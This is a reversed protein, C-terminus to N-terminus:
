PLRRFGTRIQAGLPVGRRNVVNSNRNGRASMSAPAPTDSPYIFEFMDADSLEMALYPIESFGLLLGHDSPLALDPPIATSWRASGLHVVEVSAAQATAFVRLLDYVTVRQEFSVNEYAFLNRMRAIFYSELRRDAESLMRVKLRTWVPIYTPRVVSVQSGAFSADQVVSQVRVMVDGAFDDSLRWEPAPDDVLTGVPMGAKWAGTSTTTDYEWHFYASGISIAEDPGWTRDAPSPILKDQVVNGASDKHEQDLLAANASTEYSGDAAATFEPFKRLRFHDGVSAEYTNRSFRYMGPIATGDDLPAVAVRIDSPDPAQVRSKGVGQVALAVREFDAVTTAKDPTVVGRWIIKQRISEIGEPDLGGFAPNPNTVTVGALALDDSVVTLTDAEVNGRSGGGVRYIAKIVTGNSPVVGSVGNGFRIRVPGNPSSDVQFARSTASVARIDEVREWDMSWGTSIATVVKVSDVSVSSHPITYSQWPYGNSVAIVEGTGDPGRMTTGERAPISLTGGPTIEVSEVTEFVVPLPDRSGPGSASMMSTQVRTGAPITAPELNDNTFLLDVTASTGRGPRYGVMRAMSMISSPRVASVVYAENAIRDLYYHMSDVAYAVCELLVTVFDTSDDAGTWGPIRAQMQRVLTDRLSAYDRTTYDFPVPPPGAQPISDTM